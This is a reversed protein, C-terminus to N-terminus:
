KVCDYALRFSNPKGSYKAHKGYQACHADAVALAGTSGQTVTSQNGEVVRPSVTACGAITLLVCLTAIKIM